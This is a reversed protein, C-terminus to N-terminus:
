ADDDVPAGPDFAKGQTVALGDRYLMPIKYSQGIAELFGLGRLAKVKADSQDGLLGQLSEVNYEAKGNRFLEILPANDGAEALLTDEVRESSLASLGKKMSEGTLLSDKGSWAVDESKARRRQAAIAKSVLTVLNRPAKVDNGDRIRNLIWTWTVPKKDAMDVKEPFLADFPSLSSHSQVYAAFDKSQEVRRLLLDELDEDDWIISERRANIHTLNVFGGDIIRIFLDNRLFLKLRLREYAQLDLYTRLLARLAPKEIVPTSQFAEDLRDMLLWLSIDIEELCDELIKLGTDLPVPISDDPDGKSLSIKQTLLPIGDPTLTFSGEIELNRLSKIRNVLQSFLTSPEPQTARLGATKLVMELAATKPTQDGGRFELLWNGALSLFYAKWIEIYDSERLTGAEILRQFIPAGNPNFAALLETSDFEPHQPYRHQLINFLATKGTGKDGTIVDARDEVLTRYIPTEVFYHELAVDHEAVPSGLDLIGLLSAASLQESNSM